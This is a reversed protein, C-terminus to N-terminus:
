SGSFDLTEMVASKMMELDGDSIQNSREDDLFLKKYMVSALQAIEQKPNKMGDVLTTLLAGPNTDRATM